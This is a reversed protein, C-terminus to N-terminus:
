NVPRKQAWVMDYIEQWPLIEIRTLPLSQLHAELQHRSWTKGPMLRAEWGIRNTTLLWGGVASEPRAPQLVRVLETLGQRPSPMFELAEMCTVAPASGSKFPLAMADAQVFAVRQGYQATDRRAVALMKSARDVGFVRGTFHPQRLMVRAIRGTGAAVDLITADPQSHLRAMLPQGLCFNEDDEDFEKIANYKEATWDYLLAVLRAGFYAGEAIILQWYLIAGALALLLVVAAWAPWNVM